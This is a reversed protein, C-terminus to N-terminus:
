VGTERSNIRTSGIGLQRLCLHTRLGLGVCGQNSASSPVLEWGDAFLFDFLTMSFSPHGSSPTCSVSGPCLVVMAMFVQTVSPDLPIPFLGYLLM